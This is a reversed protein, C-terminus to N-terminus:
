FLLDNTYKPPQPTMPTRHSVEVVESHFLPFSECLEPLDSDDIKGANTNACDNFFREIFSHLKTGQEAAMRGKDKWSDKIEQPSM